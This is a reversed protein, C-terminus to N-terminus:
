REGRPGSGGEGGGQQLFREIESVLDEGSPQGQEDAMQELRQVYEKSEESDAVAQDLRQRQAMAEDPLADLPLEVGLHRGAHELLGITASAFPGGVYHPVQAYFGVAPLGASSVALEITSLAASPVRLLGEPGQQEDEALLGQKSATALIPVPRTHPVAAPIAGLSVWEVVGLKLTIELVDQSLERWRFDPEPGTLVLLDRPGRRGRRRWRGARDGRDIRGRRRDVWRVGRRHRPLRTPRRAGLAPAPGDVSSLPPRASRPPVEVRSWRPSPEGLMADHVAGDRDRVRSGVDLPRELRPVENHRVVRHHADGGDLAFKRPVVVILVLQEQAPLTFEPDLELAKRRDLHVRTIEERDRAPDLVARGRRCARDNEQQLAGLGKLEPVPSARGSCPGATAGSRSRRPWRSSSWSGHSRSSCTVRPRGEM